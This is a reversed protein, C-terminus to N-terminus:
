SQAGEYEVTHFCTHNPHLAYIGLKIIEHGQHQSWLNRYNELQTQYHSIDFEDSFIIKYDIIWRTQHEDIFTRDIVIHILENNLLGSLAYETKADVHPHLIWRAQEDREVMQLRQIIEQLAQDMKSQPIQYRHCLSQLIITQTNNKKFYDIGERAMLELAHHLVQGVQREFPDKFLYSAASPALNNKQLTPHATLASLRKFSPLNDIKQTDPSQRANINVQANKFLSHWLSKPHPDKESHIATLILQHKARTCAVYLLRIIEHNFKLTHQHKIFNYLLSEKEDSAKIPALILKLTNHDQYEHWLLLEHRNHAPMAQLQPLIVTDFELGKSKHITMIQVPNDEMCIPKAFLKLLAREFANMDTLTQHTEHMAVCQFFQEADSQDQMSAYVTSGQLDQWLYELTLHLTDRQQNALYSELIPLCIALRQLGDDSLNKILRCNELITAGPGSALLHLDKLTLGIFPMRLLSLWALRDHPHLYARLLYYLDYCMSKHALTEIDIAQYPIAHANLCPLLTDLHTKARVLIAVSHQKARAQLIVDAIHEAQAFATTDIFSHLELQGQVSLAPHSPHYDIAGQNVDAKKPFISSFNTNFWQVLNEASRFNNKLALFHLHIHHIGYQKARLFLGVDAERFRYISQMPDGVIFLTKTDDWASTLKELLRWHTTSTDQFEDILIHHLSHDLQLALDTPADEDGLARLAALTNEIYDMVNEESFICQLQACLLPLVQILAALLTWEQENYQAAPLTAANVLASHLPSNEALEAIFSLCHQKMEKFLLKEAPHKSESPFGLRKDISKRYEGENTLVLQCLLSVSPANLQDTFTYFPHDSEVQTKAFMLLTRAQERQASTLADLVAQQKELILDALNKELQERTHAGHIHFLWQDRKALLRMFLESLTAPQNDCHLLIKKFSEQWDSPTEFLAILRDIAKQYLLSADECITLVAGLHSLLPMQQNLTFCLADITQIRLRQPNKLLNWTHKKDQALVARAFQQTQAQHASQTTSTPQANQLAELIRERMENVAKKTFTIALIAEPYEAHALLKLFRQILLETKGSGAPAQIIFSRTMDLAELREAYDSM